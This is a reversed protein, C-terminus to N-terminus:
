LKRPNTPPLQALLDAIVVREPVYVERVLDQMPVLVFPRERWHRHPIQWEKTTYHDSGYLLIDIDLVRPQNKPKPQKGLTHEIAQTAEILAPISLTTEFACVANVFDAQAPAEHPATVYLPSLRLDFIEPHSSLQEVAKALVAATDGINGGLGLYVTTKHM